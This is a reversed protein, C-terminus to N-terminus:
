AAVFSGGGGAVWSVEAGACAVGSDDGGSGVAAGFVSSDRARVRCAGGRGAPRGARGAARVEGSGSQGGAGVAGGDGGGPRGARRGRCGGARGAGRYARHVPVADVGRGGRRMADPEDRVVAWQAPNRLLAYTGLALMNATTDLGAALLFTGLGALEEDTLDSGTLDSFLDDTPAARKAPVLSAVYEQLQGYATMREEESLAVDSIAAAYGLFSARDSYPVGLLECIMVAPVPHAYAELLDVGPGAKEMADLYEDAVEAVRDGLLRMRRVTFKGTLLKRFRTHEPADIGTMDGVPAPPLEPFQEMGPFPYHWLEYRNSFRQDALIARVEAHGTALWGVHGDPFAMRTLPARDRVATLSPPPDFPCGAARGMPVGQVIEEGTM